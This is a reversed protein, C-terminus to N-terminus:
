RKTQRRTDVRLILLTTTRQPQRVKAEKRLVERMWEAFEPIHRSNGAQLELIM